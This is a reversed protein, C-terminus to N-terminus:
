DYNEIFLLREIGEIISHIIVQHVEQIRDSTQAPVVFSYDVLEKLKGGDKGLLGVTLLKLEIAKEVAKIVNNSNGSTSLVILYDNPQGFAEVGRSFINDFGYDNGVCTIHSPDTLSIAGLAKRDKRFRGTLEEAYHMAECASGGNGCILGKGRSVHREAILKIVDQLNTYNNDYTLFDSLIKSTELFNDKLFLM